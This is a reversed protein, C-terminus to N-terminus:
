QLVMTDETAFIALRDLLGDLDVGANYNDIILTVSADSVEFAQSTAEVQFAIAHNGAGMATVQLSGPIISCDHATYGFGSDLEMTFALSGKKLVRLYFLNFVQTQVESTILTINFRQPGRDYSLAYRSSGGEIETRSVGDPAGYSYASVLPCLRQPFAPLPM